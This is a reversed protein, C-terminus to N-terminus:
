VNHESQKDTPLIINRSVLNFRRQFANEFCVYWCISEYRIFDPNM